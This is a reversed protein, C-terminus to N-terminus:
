PRAVRWAGDLLGDGTRDGAKQDRGFYYLPKGKYAWQQRGDERTVVSWDDKSRANDTVYFPPWNAACPGNCASRGGGAPDRGFTYLTMGGAGTLVGGTVMAPSGSGYMAEMGSCGALLIATAAVATMARFM